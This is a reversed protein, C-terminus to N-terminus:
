LSQLYTIRNQIKNLKNHLYSTYAVDYQFIYLQRHLDFKRSQLVQLFQNTMKICQTCQSGNCDDCSLYDM